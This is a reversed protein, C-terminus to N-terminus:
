SGNPLACVSERVKLILEYPARNIDIPFLEPHRLAWVCKPDLSPSLFPNQEDLIENAQFGYFRLLWDAQYLRHERLKPPPTTRAPLMPHTAVPIYASYYVRKLSFKRYLGQTLNLIQLDDEGSAGIIMQTTQGAPAFSPSHRFHAQDVLANESTSAIQGM